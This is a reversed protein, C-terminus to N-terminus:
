AKKMKRISRFGLLAGGIVFLTSSIPEPVVTATTAAIWGSSTGDQIHAASTFFPNGVKPTNYANFSSASLGTSYINYVVSEGTNFRGSDGATPFDFRIDFQGDGDPKCCDTSNTILTTGVAGTNVGTFTLNIPDLSPTLNFYWGSVFESGTLNNATMTLQVTNPSVDIFTATIWPTSGAPSTGSYTTNLGITVIDADAWGAMSATFIIVLVLQLLVKSINIRKKM